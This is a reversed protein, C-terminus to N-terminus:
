NGITKIIERRKSLKTGCRACFKAGKENRFHCKANSCKRRRSKITHIRKRMQLITDWGYLVLAVAIVVGIAVGFFMVGSKDVQARISSRMIATFESVSNIYIRKQAKYEPSYLLNAATQLDGLRILNFARNEMAVLKVNVIDVKNAGQRMSPVPSIGVAEKFAADLQPEFQRYRQEWQLDGTAAAMHASMTLVEDLHKIIGDLEIARHEESGHTDFEVFLHHTYLVLGCLTVTLFLLVLLKVAFSGALTNQLIKWDLLKEKM